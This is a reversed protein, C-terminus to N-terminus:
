DDKEGLGEIYVVANRTILVNLTLPVSVGMFVLILSTLPTLILLIPSVTLVVLLMSTFYFKGAVVLSVKFLNILKIRPIVKIVIISYIIVAYLATLLALTVYYGISYFASQNTELVALYYRVNLLGLGLVLGYIINILIKRGLNEKFYRFYDRFLKPNKRLIYDHLLNYGASIAPFITILPLSFFIIMVNIVILRGFWDAFTNLKSNMLKDFFSM